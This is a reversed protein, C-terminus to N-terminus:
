LELYEKLSSYTLEKSSASLKPHHPTSGTPQCKKAIENSIDRKLNMMRANIGNNSRIQQYFSTTFMGGNKTDLSQENDQAASFVVYEGRMMQAETAKFIRSKVRELLQTLESNLSKPKPQNGFARFATGSYCSDFMVMKRADIKNLYGNLTDDLFAKNTQGDSLVMVEDEGDVEDGNTDPLHYGHGTYYFIFKDNKRLNAYEQLYKELNLSEGEPITTVHFGWERFLSQMTAVDLTVGDLDYKVGQYNSVGLILAERKVGRESQSASPKQMTPETPTCGMMLLLTATTLLYKM